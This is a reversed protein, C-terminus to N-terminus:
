NRDNYLRRVTATYKELIRDSISYIVEDMNEISLEYIMKKKMLNYLKFDLNDIPTDMDELDVTEGDESYNVIFRYLAKQLGMYVYTNNLTTSMPSDNFQFEESKYNIIITEIGLEIKIDSKINPNVKKEFLDLPKTYSGEFIVTNSFGLISNKPIIISEKFEEYFSSLDNNEKFSIKEKSQVLLQITTRESVSIRSKSIEIFKDGFNLEYFKNDKSQIVLILHAQGNDLLQTIFESDIDYEIEFRYNYINEELNVDLIFNCKKYSTSTNTLLPYPFNADKKYIM